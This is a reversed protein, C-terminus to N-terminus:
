RCPAPWVWASAALKMREVVDHYENLSRFSSKRVTYSLHRQGRAWFQPRGSRDTMVLLEGSPPSAANKDKQGRIENLHARVEDASSLTDGEVLYYDRAVERDDTITIKPLQGLFLKFAAEDGPKELVHSYEDTTASAFQKGSDAKFHAPDTIEYLTDEDLKGTEDIGRARQLQKLYVSLDPDVFAGPGTPLIGLVKLQDAVANRESSTLGPEEFSGTSSRLYRQARALWIRSEALGNIGGNVAKRVSAIDDKDAITNIGRAKWYAVATQFAGFPTRALDPEEELKINLESGRSAFNGRGTLQVLGSGRYIWGDEPLRNGLRNGYVFNAIRVPQNALQAAMEPSVRRPFIQLLRAASYNLNEALYRFGGTETALQAIFHEIRKTGVIGAQSAIKWNSVMTSVVDARARPSFRALSAADIVVVDRPQPKTKAFAVGTLFPLTVIILASLCTFM